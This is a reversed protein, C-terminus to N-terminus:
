RTTKLKRYQEETLNLFVGGRGKEIASDLAQRAALDPLAGGREAVEVVKEPDLFTVTRPLPKRHDGESFQVCWGGRLFFYM